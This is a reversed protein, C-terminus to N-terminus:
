YLGQMQSSSQGAFMFAAFAGSMCKTGRGHMVEEAAEEETEPEGEAEEVPTEEEVYEAEADEEGEAAEEEAAEEEAAAAEEAGAQPADSTKVWQAMTERAREEDTKQAEAPAPQQHASYYLM